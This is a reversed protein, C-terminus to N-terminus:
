LYKFLPPNCEQSAKLSCFGETHITTV